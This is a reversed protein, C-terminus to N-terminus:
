SKRHRQTVKQVTKNDHCFMRLSWPPTNEREPPLNLLPLQSSHIQCDSYPSQKYVSVFLHHRSVMSGDWVRFPYVFWLHRQSKWHNLSSKWLLLQPNLRILSALIGVWTKCGFALSLGIFIWYLSFFLPGCLFFFFLAVERSTVRLAEDMFYRVEWPTQTKYYM